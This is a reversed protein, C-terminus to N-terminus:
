GAQDLGALHPALRTARGVHVVGGFAGLRQEDRRIVPQRDVQEVLDGLLVRLDDIPDELPAATTEHGLRVLLEGPESSPPRIM